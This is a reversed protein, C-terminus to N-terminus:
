GLSVAKTPPKQGRSFYAAVAALLLVVVVALVIRTTGSSDGEASVTGDAAVDLYLIEGHGATRISVAWRGELTNDLDFRYVGDTDAVGALWGNQPDDPTYIVIQAESMTEGTDYLATVTITSGDIEVRSEAGHAQVVSPSLAFFMLLLLLIPLNRM